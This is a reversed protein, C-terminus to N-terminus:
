SNFVPFTLPVAALKFIAGLITEVFIVSSRPFCLEAEAWSSKSHDSPLVSPSLVLCGCLLSIHWLFCWSSPIPPPNQCGTGHHRASWQCTWWNRFVIELALTGMVGMGWPSHLSPGVCPCPCLQGEWFPRARGLVDCPLQRAPIVCM